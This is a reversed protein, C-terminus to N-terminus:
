SHSVPRRSLISSRPLTRATGTISGSNCNAKDSPMAIARCFTVFLKGPVGCNQGRTRRVGSSSRFRCDPNSSRALSIEPRVCGSMRARAAAKRKSLSLLDDKWISPSCGGACRMARQPCAIASAPCTSSLRASNSRSCRMTIPSVRKTCRPRRTSPPKTPSWSRRLPSGIGCCM